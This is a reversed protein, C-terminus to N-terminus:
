LQRIGHAGPMDYVCSSPDYGHKVRHEHHVAAQKELMAHVQEDSTFSPSQSRDSPYPPCSAETPVPAKWGHQIFTSRSWAGNTLRRDYAFGKFMPLILVHHWLHSRCGTAALNRHVCSVFAPYSQGSPWISQRGLEVCRPDLEEPTTFRHLLMWHLAGNDANYGGYPSGPLLLQAWDLFFDQSWLTNRVIYHGAAVENNFFRFCFVLDQVRNGLFDEILHDEPNVIALDGDLVLLWDIHQHLTLIRHVICLKGHYFKGTKRCEPIKDPIQVPFLTYNKL